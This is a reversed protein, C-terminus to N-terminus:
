GAATETRDSVLKRWLYLTAYSGWGPYRSEAWSRVTEEPASRPIGGYRDLAVRVALDGGVFVDRRGTGRLLANEATWRGVGPLGVLEELASRLPRRQLEASSPPSGSAWKALALLAHSKARSMGVSRLDAPTARLLRSPAPVCPIELGDVEITRGLRDFLRRKIANAATVSLQQGLIAHLLSEYLNADRPLRLGRFSRETGRLIPEARTWRYFEELPDALSFLDRVAARAAKPGAGWAEV